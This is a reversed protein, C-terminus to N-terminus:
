SVITGDKITVLKCTLLDESLRTFRPETTLLTAGTASATAAIWMDNQPVPDKCQWSNAVEAYAHLVDLRNADVWVFNALLRRLAAIKRRSWGIRAAFALSEGVSIVSVLPKFPQETLQYKLDIATGLGQGRLLLLLIDTDLIYPAPHAM